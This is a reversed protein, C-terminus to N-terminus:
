SLRPPNHVKPSWSLKPPNQIRSETSQRVKLRKGMRSRQDLKRLLNITTIILVFRKWHRDWSMLVGLWPLSWSLLWPKWNMSRRSRESWRRPWRRSGSAGSRGGRRSDPSVSTTVTVTQDRLCWLDNLEVGWTNLMQETRKLNAIILAISDSLCRM